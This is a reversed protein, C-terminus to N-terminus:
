DWLSEIKRVEKESTRHTKGRKLIIVILIAAITIGIITLVIPDTLFAILDFPAQVNKNVTISDYLTRGLADTAYFVITVKGNSLTNWTPQDITIVNTGPTASFEFTRNVGVITYWTIDLTADNITVTIEPANIGYTANSSPHVIDVIPFSIDKILNITNFNNLDGATDNAFLEITFPGEPLADWILLNLLQNSNNALMIPSYPNIVYWISDLNADNVIVNIFPRIGVVTNNLPLNILITPASAKPFDIEYNYPEQNLNNSNISIFLFAFISFLVLLQFDKNRDNKKKM